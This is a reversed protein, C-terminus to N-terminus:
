DLDCSALVAALAFATSARLCREAELAADPEQPGNPLRHLMRLGDVAAIVTAEDLIGEGTCEGGAVTEAILALAVERDTLWADAVRRAVAALPLVAEQDRLGLVVEAEAAESRAEFTRGDAPKLAAPWRAADRQRAWELSAHATQRLHVCRALDVEVESTEPPAMAFPQSISAAAAGCAAVLHALEHLLLAHRRRRALLITHSTM